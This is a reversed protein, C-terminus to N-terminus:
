RHRQNSTSAHKAGEERARDRLELLVLDLYDKDEPQTKRLDHQLAILEMTDSEKIAITFATGVKNELEKKNM